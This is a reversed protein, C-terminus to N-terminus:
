SWVWACDHLFQAVASVRKSCSRGSAFPATPPAGFLPDSIRDHQWEHRRSVSPPCLALATCVSIIENSHSSSRRKVSQHGISYYRYVKRGAINQCPPLESSFRNIAPRNIVPPSPRITVTKVQGATMQM